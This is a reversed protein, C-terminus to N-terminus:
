TNETELRKSTFGSVRKIVPKESTAFQYWNELERQGRGANVIKNDIQLENVRGSIEMICSCYKPDEGM